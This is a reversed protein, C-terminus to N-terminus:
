TISFKVECSLGMRPRSVYFYKYGEIELWSNIMEHIPYTIKKGREDIFVAKLKIEKPASVAMIKKETSLLEEKETRKKLFSIRTTLSRM